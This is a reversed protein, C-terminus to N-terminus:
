IPLGFALNVSSEMIAGTAQSVALQYADEAQQQQGPLASSYTEWASMVSQLAVCLLPAPLVLPDMHAPLSATILDAM